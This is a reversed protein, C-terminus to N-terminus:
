EINAQIDVIEKSSVSAIDAILTSWRSEFGPGSLKYVFVLANLWFLWIISSHQSYKDSLHM